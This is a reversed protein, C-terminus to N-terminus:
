LTRMGLLKRRIAVARTFNPQLKHELSYAQVKGSKVLAIIEEDSLNAIDIESNKESSRAPQELALERPRVQSKEKPAPPPDQGIPCSPKGSSPLEHPHPNLALTNSVVENGWAFVNNNL